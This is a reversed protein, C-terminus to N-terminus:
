AGGGKWLLYAGWASIIFAYATFVHQFLYVPVLQVQTQGSLFVHTLVHPVLTAVYYAIGVGILALGRGVTGGLRTSGKYVFVLGVFGTLAALADLGTEVIRPWQMLHAVGATLIVLLLGGLFIKKDKPQINFNAM